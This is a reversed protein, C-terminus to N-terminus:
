IQFVNKYKFDFKSDHKTIKRTENFENKNTEQNKSSYIHQDSYIKTFLLICLIVYNKFLFILLEMRLYFSLVVM